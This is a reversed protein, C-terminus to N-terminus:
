KSGKKFIVHSIDVGKYKKHVPIKKCNADYLFQELNQTLQIQDQIQKEHDTERFLIGTVFGMAVLSFYFPIQAM